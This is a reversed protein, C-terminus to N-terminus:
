PAREIELGPFADKMRQLIVACYAPSIEIGYCKRGLNQAAVMTTGSGLYPEMVVDDPKSCAAIPRTALEVPFACGHLSEERDVQPNIDWVSSWTKHETTDDFYFDSGFYLWFVREDCPLFMRANQTVSGPRRWIIEQRVTAGSGVIWSWPSVVCKDRYRNKHNYFVSGTETLHRAWLALASSQEAQYEGEPKSDYYSGSQVNSVWNHESHMGSPKFQDLKQNYPPSTVALAAKEGAMVRAVDGAKTSDGCLLRHEGIRWLDGAKVKWM